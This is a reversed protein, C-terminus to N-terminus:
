NEARNAWDDLQQRYKERLHRCHTLIDEDSSGCIPEETSVAWKEQFKEIAAQMKADDYDHGSIIGVTMERIYIEWRKAYYDWM